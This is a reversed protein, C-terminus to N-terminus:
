DASGRAYKAIRGGVASALGAAEGDHYNMAVMVVSRVGPLVNEPHQYAEARRPIYGMEGAFGAEIWDLLSDIGTPTVAAAIGCLEFGLESARARLRDELRGTESADASVTDHNSSLPLTM